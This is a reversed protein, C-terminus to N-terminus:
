LVLLLRVSAYMGGVGTGLAVTAGAGSRCLPLL